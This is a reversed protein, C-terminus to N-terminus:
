IKNILDHFMYKDKVLQIQKEIIISRDQKFSHEIKSKKSKEITISLNMINLVM